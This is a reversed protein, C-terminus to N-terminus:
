EAPSATSSVSLLLQAYVVESLQRQLEKSHELHPADPAGIQQQYRVLAEHSCVAVFAPDAGLSVALNGCQVLGALHSAGGVLSPDRIGLGGLKCPLRAQFWAKDDPATALVASLATRLFM